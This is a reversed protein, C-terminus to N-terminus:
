IINPQDIRYILLINSSTSQGPYCDTRDNNNSVENNTEDNNDENTIFRALIYLSKQHRLSMVSGFIELRIHYRGYKNMNVRITILDKLIVSAPKRFKYMVYTDNYFAVMLELKLNSLLVNESSPNLMEGPFAEKGTIISEKINRSNLWFREM